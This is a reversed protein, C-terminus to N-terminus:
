RKSVIIPCVLLGLKDSLLKQRSNFCKWNFVPRGALLRPGRWPTVLDGGVRSRPGKRKEAEVAENRIKRLCMRRGM